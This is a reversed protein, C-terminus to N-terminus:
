VPSKTKQIQLIKVKETKIMLNGKKRGRRTSTSSIKIEICTDFYFYTNRTLKIKSDFIQAVKRDNGRMM